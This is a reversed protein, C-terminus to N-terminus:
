GRGAPSLSPGALLARPLTLTISANDTGGTAGPAYSASYGIPARARLDPVAFTNVGDGGYTTGLLQYLTPYGAISLLQGNAEVTNNPCYPIATIYVTGLDGDTSQALASPAASLACALAAVSAGVGFDAVEARFM